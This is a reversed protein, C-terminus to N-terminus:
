NPARASLASEISYLPEEQVPCLQRYGCWNCHFGAKPRFKGAQISQAVEIIKARTQQLQELSRATPVPSNTELNYFGISQPLENWEQQAALAYISLQLSKEAEEDDKAAGTKYDLIGIGGEQTRHALDIRGVVKVGGITLTFLKETAVVEVQAEVNRLYYFEELQRLGQQLYLQKQHADDFPSNDMQTSFVGLFDVISLPRGAQTADNFAKMATHVANGFQMAPVPEGPINWDTEIKFRLPCQDYREIRSASLSIHNMDRGPPLLMWEGVPSCAQIDEGANINVRPEVLRPTCDAFISADAVMERIFGPPTAEVFCPPRPEKRASSRKGYLSLTDRARTMSVYFLRREEEKNLEKADGEDPASWDKLAAPFEFLTEQYHAPFSGSIARIVFVHPFELGKAVHATMFQVADPPSEPEPLYVKGNAETYYDLYELFDGITEGAGSPKESWSIIFDRLARTSATAPLSFQKLGIDFTSTAKNGSQSALTRSRHLAELLLLGGKVKELVNGLKADKGAATLAARFEKPDIAFQPLAALRFIAANDGANTIARVVALADRVEPTDLVDVGRVFIPIRRSSLVRALVERHNHQRFLVAIHRWSCRERGNRTEHGPCSAHFREIADAIEAAESESGYQAPTYALEVTTGQKGQLERASVLPERKIGDMIAPNHDIVRFACRLIPGLSRRNQTLTVQKVATFQKRFQDFAGSTAGRFRYIAQDPDGVAFINQEDGALLKALKIQAVNSDQFEDILIFRARRRAEALQTSGSVLLKVTRSIQHGFTGLNRERLMETVRTFAHAIEECRAIVEERGLGEMDDSKLVRPLPYKGEKLEAVYACYREATVLEDDCRDFFTLLSNLFQGPKAARIYYRLGLSRLERRLLVYLDERTLPTFDEGAQRLLSACYSHFTSAQLGGSFLPASIREAVRERLEAAANNTFTVALIEDPQAHGNEILSVVREVLVTTKGTGAGAIVLMPGHVHEIAVKQQPDPAFGL